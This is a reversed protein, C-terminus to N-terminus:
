GIDSALTTTGKIVVTPMLLLTVKRSFCPV